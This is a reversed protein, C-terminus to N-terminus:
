STRTWPGGHSAAAPRALQGVFCPRVIAPSQQRLSRASNGSIAVTVAPRSALAAANYRSVYLVALRQDHRTLTRRQRTRCHGHASISSSFSLSSRRANVMLVAGGAHLLELLISKSGHQRLVRGATAISLGAWCRRHALAVCLRNAVAFTEPRSSHPRVRAPEINRVVAGARCSSGHM